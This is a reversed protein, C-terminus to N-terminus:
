IELELNLTKRLTDIVDILHAKMETEALDPDKKAVANIIRQHYNIARQSTGPIKTYDELFRQIMKSITLLFRKLVMNQSIDSLSLHFEIDYRITQQTNNKDANIEMLEVIKRLKAIDKHTSRKAALRVIIVELYFRSELLDQTSNKDLQIADCVPDLINCADPHSVFSGHGHKTKILGISALKNWAERVVTRSVGFEKCFIEQSALKEDQKLKGSLIEDRIANFVMEVLNGRKFHPLKVRTNISNKM